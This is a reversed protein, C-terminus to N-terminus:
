WDRTSSNSSTSNEILVNIGVIAIPNAETHTRQTEAEWFRALTRKPRGLKWPRCGCAPQIWRSEDPNRSTTTVSIHQLVPVELTSPEIKKSLRRAWEQSLRRTENPLQKQSKIRNIRKIRSSSWYLDLLLRSSDCMRVGCALQSKPLTTSRHTRRATLPPSGTALHWPIGHSIGFDFFRSLGLFSPVWPVGVDGIDGLMGLM